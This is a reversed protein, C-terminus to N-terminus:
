YTFEASYDTGDSLHGDVYGLYERGQGMSTATHFTFDGAADGPAMPEGTYPNAPWSIFRAVEGGSWVDDVSPGYGYEGAFAECGQAITEVGEVVAQDGEAGENTTSGSTGGTSGGSGSGGDNNFVLFAGGAACCCLLLAAVIGLVVWLVIPKRPGGSGTTAPATPPGAPPPATPQTQTEVVPASTQQDSVM